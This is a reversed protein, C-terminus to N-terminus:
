NFQLVNFRIRFVDVLSGLHGKINKKCSDEVTAILRNFKTMEQLLVTSLSPILGQSNEIFLEKFGEEKRLYGPLGELISTTLTSV